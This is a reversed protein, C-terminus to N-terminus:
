KRASFRLKPKLDENAHGDGRLEVDQNSVKETPAPALDPPGTREVTESVETKEVSELAVLLAKLTQLEPTRPQALLLGAPLEHLEDAQTSALGHKRATRCSTCEGACGWSVCATGCQRSAKHTCRTHDCTRASRGGWRAGVSGCQPSVMRTRYRGCSIRGSSYGLEAGVSECRPSAM